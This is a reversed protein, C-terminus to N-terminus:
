EKARTNAKFDMRLLEIFEIAESETACTKIPVQFGNPLM